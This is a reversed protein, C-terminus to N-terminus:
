GFLHGRWGMAIYSLNYKSDYQVSYYSQITFRSSFIKFLEDKRGSRQHEKTRTEFEKYGDAIGSKYKEKYLNKSNSAAAAHRPIKVFVRSGKNAAVGFCDGNFDDPDQVPIQLCSKDMKKTVDAINHGPEQYFLIGHVYIKEPILLDDKSLTFVEIEKDNTKMPSKTMDFLKTSTSKAAAITIGKEPTKYPNTTKIAKKPPTEITKSKLLKM